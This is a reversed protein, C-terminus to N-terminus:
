YKSSLMLNKGKGKQRSFMGPMEKRTGRAKYLAERAISKASAAYMEAKKAVQNAQNLPHGEDLALSITIDARKPVGIVGRVLGSHFLSEDIKVDLIDWVLPVYSVGFQFLVQPPPYNENGYSLGWGGFIGPDPERLQEFFAIEEMVGTPSEMDLCILSFQVEKADFGSFYRKKYAGGINPAIAYSIKKTSDIKEPNFQFIFPAWSSMNIIVGHGQSLGM